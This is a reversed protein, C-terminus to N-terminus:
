PTKIPYEETRIKSNFMSPFFSYRGSNGIVNGTLGSSSTEKFVKKDVINDYGGMCNCVYGAESSSYEVIFSTAENVNYCFDNCSTKISEPAYGGVAAGYFAGYLFIAIFLVLSIILALISLVLGKTKKNKAMYIFSTIAFVAGFVPQVFSYIIAMISWINFGLQSEKLKGYVQSVRDSNYLYLIWIVCYPVGRLLTYDSSIISYIILEIGLTFLVIKTFRVAYPKKNWLFIGSVIFLSIEGLIFVIDYASIGEAFVNGINILPSIIVLTIIFFTLWGGIDNLSSKEEVEKRAM